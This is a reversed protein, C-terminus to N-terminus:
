AKMISHCLQAALSMRAATKAASSPAQSTYASTPDSAFSPPSLTLPSLIGSPGAWRAFSLGPMM